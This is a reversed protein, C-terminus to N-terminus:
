TLAVSLVQLDCFEDLGWRGNERGIGSWKVGGFPAKGSLNFHQNVWATGAEGPAAAGRLVSTEVGARAWQGVLRASALPTWASDAAGAMGVDTVLAAFAMLGISTVGNVGAFLGLVTVRDYRRLLAPLRARAALGHVVAAM